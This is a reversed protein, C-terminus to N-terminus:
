SNTCATCLIIYIYYLEVASTNNCYQVVDTMPPAILVVSYRQSQTRNVEANRPSYLLRLIALSTHSLATNSASVYQSLL